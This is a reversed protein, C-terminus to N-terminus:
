RLGKARLLADAWAAEGPALPPEPDRHYDIDDYGGSEYPLNL